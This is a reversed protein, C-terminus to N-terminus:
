EAAASAEDNDLVTSGGSTNIPKDASPGKWTPRKSAAQRRRADELIATIDGGFKEALRERTRHIDEITSDIDAKQIM